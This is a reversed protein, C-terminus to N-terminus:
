TVKHSGHTGIIRGITGISCRFLHIKNRVKQRSAFLLETEAMQKQFSKFLKSIIGLPVSHLVGRHMGCLAAYLVQNFPRTRVVSSASTRRLSFM